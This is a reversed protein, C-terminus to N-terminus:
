CSPRDPVDGVAPEELFKELEIEPRIVWDLAFWFPGVREGPGPATYHWVNAVVGRRYGYRAAYLAPGAVLLAALVAFAAAAVRQRRARLLRALHVYTAIGALPTALFTITSLVTNLRDNRRELPLWTAAIVVAAALPAIIAPISRRGAPPSTLLM